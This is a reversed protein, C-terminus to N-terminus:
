GLRSVQDARRLFLGSHQGEVVKVELEFQAMLRTALEELFGLPTYSGLVDFWSDFGYQNPTCDVLAGGLDVFVFDPTTFCNLSYRGEVFGCMVQTLTTLLVHELHATANSILFLKTGGSSDEQTPADALIVKVIPRHRHPAMFTGHVNMSGSRKATEMMEDWDVRQVGEEKSDSVFEGLDLQDFNAERFVEHRSYEPASGEPLPSGGETLLTGDSAAAIRTATWGEYRTEGTFSVHTPPRFRIEVDWQLPGVQSHPAKRSRVSTIACSHPPYGRWERDNLM